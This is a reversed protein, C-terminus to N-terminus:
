QLELRGEPSLGGGLTLERKKRLCEARSPQQTGGRAPAPAKGRPGGRKPRPAGPARAPAGAPATAPAPTTAAMAAPRSAPSSADDCGALLACGLLLALVYRATM